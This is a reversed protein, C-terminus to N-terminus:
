VRSSKTHLCGEASRPHYRSTGSEARRTRMAPGLKEDRISSYEPSPIAVM